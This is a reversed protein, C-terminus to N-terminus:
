SGTLSPSICFLPNPISTATNSELPFDIFFLFPSNTQLDENGDIQQSMANISITKSRLNLGRKIFPLSDYITSLKPPVIKQAFELIQQGLEKPNCGLSLEMREKTGFLNAVLPYKSGNVNKFLLAPGGEEITRSCIETIELNPDVESEITKLDGIRDLFKIYSQLDHFNNSSMKLRKPEGDPSLTSV